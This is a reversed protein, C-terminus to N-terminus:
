SSPAYRTTSGFTADRIEVFALQALEADLRRYLERAVLEFTPRFDFIETWTNDALPACHKELIEAAQDTDFFWGRDTLQGDEFAVGANVTVEVRTGPEIPKLGRRARVPSPLGQVARFTHEVEVLFGM